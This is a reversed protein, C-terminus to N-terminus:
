LSGYGFQYTEKRKLKIKETITDNNVIYEITAYIYLSKDNNEYFFNPAIFVCSHKYNTNFELVESNLSSIVPCKSLMEFNNSRINAKIIMENSKKKLQVNIIDINSNQQIPKYFILKHTFINKITFLIVFLISLSFYVKSIKM